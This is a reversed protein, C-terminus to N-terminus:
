YGPLRDRGVYSVASTLKNRTESDPPTHSLLKIMLRETTNKLAPIMTVDMSCDQQYDQLWCVPLLESPTLGSIGVAQSAIDCM